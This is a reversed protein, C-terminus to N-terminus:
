LSRIESQGEECGSGQCVMKCGAASVVEGLEADMASVEVAHKVEWEQHEQDQEQNTTTNTDHKNCTHL